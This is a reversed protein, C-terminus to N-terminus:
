TTSRQPRSASQALLVSIDHLGLRNALALASDNHHNGISPDAGSELLAAVAELNHRAVAVHLATDGMEAGPQNINAKMSALLRIAHPRNHRAAEHLPPVDRANKTQLLAPNWPSALLKIMGLDGRACARHLATDGHADLADRRAGCQILAAVAPRHRQHQAMLLPTEHHIDRLELDAGLRALLRIAEAQGHEAALLLPTSHLGDQINLVDPNRKRWNALLEIIALNGQASAYHLATAGDGDAKAPDHGRKLCQKVRRADGASAAALLPDDVPFAGRHSVLKQLAELAPLNGLQMALFAPTHLHIPHTHPVLGQDLLLLMRESLDIGDIRSRTGNDIEHGHRALHHLWGEDPHANRDRPPTADILGALMLHLAGYLARQDHGRNILEIAAARPSAHQECHRLFAMCMDHIGSAVTVLVTKGAPLKIGHQALTIGLDIMDADLPRFRDVLQMYRTARPPSEDQTAPPRACCLM